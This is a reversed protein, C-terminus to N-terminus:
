FHKALIPTVLHFQEHLIGFGGTLVLPEGEGQIDYWLEVRGSTATAM